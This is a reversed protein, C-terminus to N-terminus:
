KRELDDVKQRLLAQDSKRELDDVKQRLSAQESELKSSAGGCACALAAFGSLLLAGARRRAMWCRRPDAYRERIRSPSRSRSRSRSRESGRVAQVDPSVGAGRGDSVGWLFERM